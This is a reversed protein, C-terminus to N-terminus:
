RTAVCRRQVTTPPRGWMATPDLYLRQQEHAIRHVLGVGLVPCNALAAAVSALFADKQHPPLPRAAAFIEDLEADTLKVAM